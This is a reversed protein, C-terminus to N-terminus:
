EEGFRGAILAELADIAEPADAGHATVNLLSGKGAALMLLGMISKGDSVHGDKAVAIECSFRSATKVFLSAPRAHLGLRNHVIFEQAVRTHEADM